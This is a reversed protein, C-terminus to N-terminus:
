IAYLRVSMAHTPRIPLSAAAATPATPIRIQIDLEMAKNFLTPDSTLTPCDIPAWFKSSALFNALWLIEMANIIDTMQPVISKPPAWKM